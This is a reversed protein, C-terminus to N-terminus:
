VIVTLIEKVEWHRRSPENALCSVVQSGSLHVSCSLSRPPAPQSEKTPDIETLFATQIDIVFFLLLFLTGPSLLSSCKDKGGGNGSSPSSIRHHSSTSCSLSTRAYHVASIPPSWSTVVSCNNCPAVLFLFPFSFPEFTCSFDKIQAALSVSHFFSSSFSHQECESLLVHLSLCLCLDAITENWTTKNHRTRPWFHELSSPTQSPIQIRINHLKSATFSCM